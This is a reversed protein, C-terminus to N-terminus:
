ATKRKRAAAAAPIMSAVPKQEDPKQMRAKGYFVTRLTVMHRKKCLKFFVGGPTRRHTGDNTLMGGNQEIELTDRILSMVEVTGLKLVIKLIKIRPSRDQEDLTTAVDKIFQWTKEDIRRAQTTM